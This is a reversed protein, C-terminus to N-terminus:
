NSIDTFLISKWCSVVPDWVFESSLFILLLFYIFVSQEGKVKNDLFNFLFTSQWICTFFSQSTIYVGFCLAHLSCDITYARRKKTKRKKKDNLFCLQQKKKQDIFFPQSVRDRAFHFGFSNKLRDGKTQLCTRRKKKIAHLGFCGGCCCRRFLSTPQSTPFHWWPM